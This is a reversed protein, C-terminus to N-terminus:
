IRLVPRSGPPAPPPVSPKRLPAHLLPVPSDFAATLRGTLAPAPPTGAESRSSVLAAGSLHAGDHLGCAHISSAPGVSVDSPPSVHPPHGDHHGSATAHAAHAMGMDSACVITCLSGWVPVGALAVVILAAIGRPMLRAVLHTYM